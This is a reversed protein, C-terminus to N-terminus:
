QDILRTNRQLTRRPYETKTLYEKADEIEKLRLFKTVLRWGKDTIRRWYVYIPHKVSFIGLEKLFRQTDRAIALGRHQCPQQM